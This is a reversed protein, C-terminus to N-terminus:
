KQIWALFRMASALLSVRMAPPGTIKGSRCCYPTVMVGASLSCLAM